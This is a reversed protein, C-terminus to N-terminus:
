DEDLVAQCEMVFAWQEAASPDRAPKGLLQDRKARLRNANIVKDINPIESLNPPPKGSPSISLRRWGIRSKM